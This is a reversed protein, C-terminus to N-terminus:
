GLYSGAVRARALIKDKFAPNQSLWKYVASRAAPLGKHGKEAIIQGLTKGEVLEECTFTAVEENYTTKGAMTSPEPDSIM